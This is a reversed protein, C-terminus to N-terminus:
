LREERTMGHPLCTFTFFYEPFDSLYTGYMALSVFLLLSM